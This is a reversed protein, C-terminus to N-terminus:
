ALSVLMLNHLCSVVEVCPQVGTDDAMDVPDWPIHLYIAVLYGVLECHYSHIPCFRVHRGIM